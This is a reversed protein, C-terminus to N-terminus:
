RDKQRDIEKETQRDKQRDIKRESYKDRDSTKAVGRNAEQELGLQRFSSEQPGPEVRSGVNLQGKDM